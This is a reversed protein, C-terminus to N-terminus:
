PGCEGLPRARGWAEPQKPPSICVAADASQVIPVLGRRAAPTRCDPCAGARRLHPKLSRGLHSEQLAGRHSQMRKFESQVHYDCFACRSKNVPAGCTGGSQSESM